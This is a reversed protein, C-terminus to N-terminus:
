HQVDERCSYRGLKFYGAEPSNGFDDDWATSGAAVGRFASFDFSLGNFFEDDFVSGLPAVFILM